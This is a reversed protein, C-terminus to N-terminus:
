ATKRKTYFESKEIMYGIFEDDKFYHRLYGGNVKVSKHFYKLLLKDILDSLYFIRDNFRNHGKDRSLYYHFDLLWDSLYALDLILPEDKKLLRYEKDSSYLETVDQITLPSFNRIPEHTGEILESITFITHYGDKFSSKLWNEFESNKEFPLLNYINELMDLLELNDMFDFEAGQKKGYKEIILQMKHNYSFAEKKLGNLQKM